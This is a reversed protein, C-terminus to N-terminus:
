LGLRERAIPYESLYTAVSYGFSSSLMGFHQQITQNIPLPAQTNNGSM